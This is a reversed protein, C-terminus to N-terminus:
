LHGDESSWCGTTLEHQILQKIDVIFSGNESFAWIEDTM